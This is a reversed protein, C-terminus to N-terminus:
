SRPAVDDLKLDLIREGFRTFLTRCQARTARFLEAAFYLFGGVLLPRAVIGGDNAVSVLLAVAWSQQELPLGRHRMYAARISSYMGGLAPVSLGRVAADCRGGWWAATTPSMDPRWHVLAYLRREPQLPLLAGALVLLLLSALTACLILREDQLWAALATRETRYTYGCTECKVFSHPNASAVRWENLCRVHVHRVSGRCRCPAILPGAEVGCFCVRCLQEEGEAGADADAGRAGNGIHAGADGDGAGAGTGPPFAREWAQAIRAAGRAPTPDAPHRRSPSARNQAMQAPSERAHPESPPPAPLVRALVVVPSGRLPELCEDEKLLRGGHAVHLRVARGIEGPRAARLEAKLAAVTWSPAVTFKDILVSRSTADCIQLDFAAM